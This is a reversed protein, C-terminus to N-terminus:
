LNNRHCPRNGIKGIYYYNPIARTKFSEKLFLIFLEAQLCVDLDSNLYNVTKLAKVFEAVDM